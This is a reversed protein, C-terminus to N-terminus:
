AVQYGGLTWGLVTFSLSAGGMVRHPPDYEMLAEVSGNARRARRSDHDALLLESALNARHIRRWAAPRMM